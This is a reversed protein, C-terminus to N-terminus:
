TMIIMIILLILIKACARCYIYIYKFSDRVHYRKVLEECMALFFYCSNNLGMLIVECSHLKENFYGLKNDRNFLMHVPVAVTM